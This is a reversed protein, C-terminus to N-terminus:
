RRRIRMAPNVPPAPTDRELEGLRWTKADKLSEKVFYKDMDKTDWPLQTQEERSATRYTQQTRVLDVLLQGGNRIVNDWQEERIQKQLYSLPNTQRPPQQLYLPGDLYLMRKTFARIKSGGTSNDYIYAADELNMQTDILSGMALGAAEDTFHPALFKDGLVWLRFANVAGKQWDLGGTYVWSVFAEIETPDDEPLEITANVAEKFHGFLAKDFFDSYFALLTKHCVIEKKSAGVFLKAM